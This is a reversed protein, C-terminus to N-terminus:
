LVACVWEGDDCASQRDGGLMGVSWGKEGTEHWGSSRPHTSDQLEDEPPDGPLLRTNWLYVGACALSLQGAHMGLYGVEYFWWDGGFWYNASSLKNM